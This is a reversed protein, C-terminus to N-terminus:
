ALRLSSMVLGPLSEYEWLIDCELRESVLMRKKGPVNM